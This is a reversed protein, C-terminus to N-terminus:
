KHVDNREEKSQPPPTSTQLGGAMHRDTEELSMPPPSAGPSGYLEFPGHDEEQALTVSRTSSKEGISRTNEGLEALTRTGERGDKTYIEVPRVNPDEPYHNAPIGVQGALGSNSRPGAGQNIDPTGNDDHDTYPGAVADPGDYEYALGNWHPRPRHGTGSSPSTIDSMGAVHPVYPGMLEDRQDGERKSSALTTDRGRSRAERRRRLWFWTLAGIVIAAGVAVGAGIGARAAESLGTDVITLNAACLQQTETALVSSTCTSGINCCGGGESAACAIQSTTCGPPIPTVITSISTTTPTTDPFFCSSDSRCTAGYQCCQGGFTQQCLFHSSNCLRGCCGVQVSTQEISSISGSTSVPATTTITTNCYLETEGCNGCPLGLACCQVGWTENLFCYQDNRCCFGAGQPGLELCGHSGQGCQIPQDQRKAGAPLAPIPPMGNVFQRPGFGPDAHAAGPFLAVNDLVAFNRGDDIALAFSMLSAILVAVTATAVVTRKPAM